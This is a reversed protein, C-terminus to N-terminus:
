TYRNCVFDPKATLGGKSTNRALRAESTKDQFVPEGLPEGQWEHLLSVNNCNEAVVERRMM